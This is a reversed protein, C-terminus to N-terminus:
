LYYKVEDEEEEEEETGIEGDKDEGQVEHYLQSFMATVNEEFAEDVRVDDVSGDDNMRKIDISVKPKKIRGSQARGHSTPDRPEMSLLQTPLHAAWPHIALAQRLKVIAAEKNGVCM